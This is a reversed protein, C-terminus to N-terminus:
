SETAAKLAQAFREGAAFNVRPIEVCLRGGDVFSITLDLQKIGFTKGPRAEVGAIEGLPIIASATAAAKGSMKSVPLVFLRTATVGLALEKSLQEGAIVHGDKEGSSAALAGVVGFLGAGLSKKRIHGEAVCKVAAVFTEGALQDGAAKTLREAYEAM